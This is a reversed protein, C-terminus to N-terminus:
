IGGASLDQHAWGSHPIEDLKGARQDNSDGHEATSAPTRGFTAKLAAHPHIAGARNIRDGFGYCLFEHQLMPTGANRHAHAARSATKGLKESAFGVEVV